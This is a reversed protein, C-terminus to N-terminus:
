CSQNSSQWNETSGSMTWEGSYLDGSLGGPGEWYFSLGYDSSLEQVEQIVKTVLAMKETILRLANRQGDENERREAELLELSLQEIQQRIDVASKM